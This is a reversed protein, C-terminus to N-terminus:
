RGASSALIRFEGPALRVEVGSDHAFPGAKVSLRLSTLSIVIIRGRRGAHDGALVRVWDGAQAVISSM